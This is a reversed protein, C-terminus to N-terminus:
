CTLVTREALGEIKATDRFDATADVGKKPKGEWVTVALPLRPAAMLLADHIIRKTAATYLAADNGDGDLVVLTQDYIVKKIIIDYLEGWDGPRDIVSTVRFKDPAFPLVVHCRMSLQMAIELALLDAGCAASSVLIQLQEKQFLDHLAIKVAPIREAPFRKPEGAADIRRGALAAM